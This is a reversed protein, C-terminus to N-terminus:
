RRVGWGSSSQQREQLQNIKMEIRAKVAGWFMGPDKEDDLMLATVAEGDPGVIVYAGAFENRDNADIREAMKTFPTSVDPAPPPEVLPYSM